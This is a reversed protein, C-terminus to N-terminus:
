FAAGLGLHLRPLGDSGDLPQAVDLRVMGVPSRWRVGLGAGTKLEAQPDIYANGTDVFAAVYWDDRVVPYMAEVSGVLLYKGGILTGDENEPALSEYEYGRVSRDGGTFFRLSRPMKDFEDTVIMGAEGRGAFIWRGLSLYGGVFLHGRVFSTASLVPEAAGQLSVDVVVGESPFLPDDLGDYGLRGGLIAFGNSEPPEDGYRTRDLLYETFLSRTWRDGEYAWQLGTAAATTLIDNNDERTARAYIDYRERLPDAARPITYTTDIRQEIASLQTRAAWQHGRKNVYRRTVKAGVRPGVDTAYGASLEYSTRANRRTTIDVPVELDEREDLRPRVSVSEFYETGTLNQNMALLDASTYPTGSPVGVLRRALQPELISQEITVEGFRYRQGPDLALKIRAAQQEPDVRLERTTFRADLYGQKQVRSLLGDRFADYAAQDLPEGEEPRNDELFTEVSELSEIATPLEISVSEIKTVPGADIDLAPDRCDERSQISTRIRANFHGYAQLAEEAAEAASDLYRRIQATGAQCSFGIRPVSLGVNTVLDKESLGTLQLQPTPAAM